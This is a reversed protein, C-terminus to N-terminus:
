NPLWSSDKLHDAIRNMIIQLFYFNYGSEGPEEEKIKRLYDIVTQSAIVVIWNSLNSGDDQKWQRLRKKDNDILNWYQQISKVCDKDKHEICEKLIVHEQEIPLKNKQTSM